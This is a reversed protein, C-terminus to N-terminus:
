GSFFEFFAPFFSTQQEKHEKNPSVCNFSGCAHARRINGRLGVREHKRNEQQLGGAYTRNTNETTLKQFQLSAGSHDRFGQSHTYTLIPVGVGLAKLERLEAVAKGVSDLLFDPNKDTAYSPDIIIHEHAYCVGLEEPAIDGLVTRIFTM